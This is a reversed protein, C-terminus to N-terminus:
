ELFGKSVLIQYDVDSYPEYGKNLLDKIYMKNYFFPFILMCWGFISFKYSIISILAMLAFMKFDSRFLPVFFGFFLTTWSFGVKSEVIIGKENKLRVTM